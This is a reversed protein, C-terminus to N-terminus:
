VAANPSLQVFAGDLAPTTMLIPGGPNFTPQFIKKGTDRTGLKSEALLLLENQLQWLLQPETEPRTNTFQM